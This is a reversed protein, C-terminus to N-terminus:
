NEDEIEYGTLATKKLIEPNSGLFYLSAVHSNREYINSVKTFILLKFLYKCSSLLWQSVDSVNLRSPLSLLFLSIQIIAM